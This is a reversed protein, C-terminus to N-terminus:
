KIDIKKEDNLILSNNEKPKETKAIIFGSVFPTLSAFYVSLSNIDGGIFIGYFGLITWLLVTLYIVIERSSSKGKKFIHSSNSKRKIESYLYTSIFATLSAYYGALQILNIDNYIGLIGFLVWMFMVIYILIESKTIIKM